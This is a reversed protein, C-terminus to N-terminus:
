GEILRSIGEDYVINVPLERLEKRTYDVGHRSLAYQFADLDYLEDCEEDDPGIALMVSRDFEDKTICYPPAAQTHTSLPAEVTTEVVRGFFGRDDAVLIRRGDPTVVYETIAVSYSTPDFQIDSSTAEAANDLGDASGALRCVVEIQASTIISRM